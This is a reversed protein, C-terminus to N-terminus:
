TMRRPRQRILWSSRELVSAGPSMDESSEERGYTMRAISGNSSMENEIGFTMSRVCASATHLRVATRMGPSELRALRM